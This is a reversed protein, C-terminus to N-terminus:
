RVCEVLPIIEDCVSQENDGQKFCVVVREFGSESISLYANSYTKGQFRVVGILRGDIQVCNTEFSMGEVLPPMIDVKVAAAAGMCTLSYRIRVQENIWGGEFASGTKTAFFSLVTEVIGM